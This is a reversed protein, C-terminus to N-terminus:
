VPIVSAVRPDSEVKQRLKEIRAASEPPVAEMTEYPTKLQYARYWYIYSVKDKDERAPWLDAIASAAARHTAPEVVTLSPVDQVFLETLAIQHTHILVMWLLFEEDTTSGSMHDRLLAAHILHLPIPLM